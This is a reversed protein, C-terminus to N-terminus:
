AALKAADRMTDALLGYATAWAERVEDTFAEGLGQALTSPLCLTTSYDRSWM